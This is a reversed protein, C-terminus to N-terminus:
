DLDDLTNSKKKKETIGKKQTKQENAADQKTSNADMLNQEKWEDLKKKVMDEKESMIEFDKDEIHDYGLLHCMGHILLTELHNDISVNNEKCYDEVYELSILIEGLDRKGGIAPPLQGPKLDEHLPISLVDTPKNIKRYFYNNEQMSKNSIISLCTDYDDVQLIKAIQKWKRHLLKLNAPSNKQFNKILLIM